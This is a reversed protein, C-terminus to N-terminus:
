KYITKGTEKELTLKKLPDQIRKIMSMAKMKPVPM